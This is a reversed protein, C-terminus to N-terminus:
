EMDRTQDEVKEDAGVVVLHSECTDEDLQISKVDITSRTM